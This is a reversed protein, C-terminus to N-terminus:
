PRTQLGTTDVPQGLPILGLGLPWGPGGTPGPSEPGPRDAGPTSWSDRAVRALTWHGRPSGIVKAFRTPTRTGVPDVLKGPGSPGTGLSGNTRGATGPSEVRSRPGAHELLEEPGSTSPDSPGPRRGATRAVQARSPPAATDVLRGHHSPGTGSFGRTRGASGHSKHGPGLAQPIFLSVRPIRARTRPGTTDVPQGLPILGTGAPWCTRGTSGPSETGHRLAWSTSWINRASPGPHSTRRPRGVTRCSQPVPRFARMNSCSERVVRAQTRHGAHDVLKRPHSPDTASPWHHRCVSGPSELEPGM